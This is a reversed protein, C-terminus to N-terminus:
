IYDKLNHADILSKVLDRNQDEFDAPSIRYARHDAAMSVILRRGDHAPWMHYNCCTYQTYSELM